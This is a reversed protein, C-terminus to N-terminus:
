LKAGRVKGISEIINIVVDHNLALPVINTESFKGRVSKAIAEAAIIEMQTSINKLRHDIISRFIGPFVLSNNIQNPFDSRGTAM